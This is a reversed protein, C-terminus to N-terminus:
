SRGAARPGRGPRHTTDRHASDAPLEHEVRGVLTGTLANVHVEYIGPRNPVAFDWSWILSGNENELELAKPTGSPIRAQAVKLASDESVKTLRLLRPPVERKYTPRQAAGQTAAAIVLGAALAAVKTVTKM